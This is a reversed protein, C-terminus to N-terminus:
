RGREIKEMIDDVIEDPVWGALNVGYSALERVVSSSVHLYPEESALFLTELGPSVTSNIWAMQMESTFDDVTRLGKIIVTAGNERCYDSLLGSFSDAQANPIDHMARRLLDIREEATFLNHKESNRMTCVLVRDFIRAARRIVSIHGLTVPDFSGPYVAIKM